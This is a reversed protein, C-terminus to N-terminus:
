EKQRHAVMFFLIDSVPQPLNFLTATQPMRYLEIQEYGAERFLRYATEEDYVAGPTSSTYRRFIQVIRSAEQVGQAQMYGLDAIFIGGPKLSQYVSKAIRTIDPYAFYAMLGEATVIDVRQQNLVEALPQAGLDAAKWSMNSPIAIKANELRKRKEEVVDPLDIEIVQLGPMEKALTIGRSSFGTAIEVVVKGATEQGLVQKILGTFSGSRVPVFNLVKKSSLAIMLRAAIRGSMRALAATEPMPMLEARLGAFMEATRQGATRGMGLLDESTTDKSVSSMGRASAAKLPSLRQTSSKDQAAPESMSQEKPPSPPKNEM